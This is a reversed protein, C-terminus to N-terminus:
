GGRKTLDARLDLYLRDLDVLLAGSSAALAAAANTFGARAFLVYHVQWDDDPVVLRTKELLDRVVSRNLANAGWKCEGILMAKERGNAAVVDVQSDTSWHSGVTEPLFPLTSPATARVWERCLEEFVTMGVFARFQEGIREWLLDARGLEIM